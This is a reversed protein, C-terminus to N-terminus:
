KKATDEAEQANEATLMGNLALGADVIKRVVPLPFQKVAERDEDTIVMPKGKKDCLFVEVFRCMQDVSDGNSAASIKPLDCVSVARVFVPESAGVDVPVPKIILDSLSLM